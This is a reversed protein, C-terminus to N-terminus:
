GGIIPAVFSCSPKQAHGPDLANLVLRLAIHDFAVALHESFDLWCFDQVLYNRVNPGSALFASSYPTVIEDYKTTIVTYNVGPVTEGGANLETIFPSGAMQDTCAGCINGVATELGPFLSMMKTMGLFTTGHNSPALGIMNVVKAAGGLNKIYYRPMTGGQSHGVLDVKPVGTATTVQDVFTSLQAASSALPMYGGLHGLVPAGNDGYNFAFVCYGENKLLPSLTGWNVGMSALTAHVLIVPRPHAPSPKCSWDNAGAPAVGPGDSMAKAIGAISSYKVPLKPSSAATAAGPAVFVFLMSLMSIALIAVAARPRAFLKM